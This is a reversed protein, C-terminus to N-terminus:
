LVRLRYGEAADGDTIRGAEGAADLTETVFENPVRGSV